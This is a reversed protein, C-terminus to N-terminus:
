LPSVKREAGSWDTRSGGQVEWPLQVSMISSKRDFGFAGMIGVYDEVDFVPGEAADIITRSQVMGARIHYAGTNLFYGPVRIKARYHGAERRELRSLDLEGDNTSLVVLGLQDSHIEMSVILGQMAEALEYEILVDFPKTLEVKGSLEGNTNEVRISRIKGRAGPSLPEDFTGGIAANAGRKVYTSLVHGTEGQTVVRGNELLVSRRCLRSLASLNHSVFLVTRGEVGIESMRGLCKKQFLLDGVALVEDVILIDSDLHAAVAFALRVYMGSSYRKVPTDIFQEIEAFAVIEDFRRAVDTQSMGLIAGNLFINERGTLEPHFGTGVELLTAASGNMRIRGSTPATIRSLIKLLTSKGAGNRGVIGLTEGRPVELSVGDLARFISGQQRPAGADTRANPDPKNRMRAWYSQVDKFLMGHNIVGLRYEKTLNEISIALASM